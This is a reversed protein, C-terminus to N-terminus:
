FEVIETWKRRHAMENEAYFESWCDGACCFVDNLSDYVASQGENIPAQCAAGRVGRVTYFGGPTVDYRAEETLRIIDGVKADGEVREYEAGEYSLKTIEGGVMDLTKVDKLAAM